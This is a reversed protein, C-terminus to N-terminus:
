LQAAFDEAAKEVTKRAILMMDSGIILGRKLKRETHTSYLLRGTARERLTIDVSAKGSGAGFLGFFIRLAKKGYIMHIRTEVVMEAGSVNRISRERLAAAVESVSLKALEQNFADADPNEEHSTVMAPLIEVQAVMVPADASRRVDSQMRMCGSLAVVTLGLLLWRMVNGQVSM